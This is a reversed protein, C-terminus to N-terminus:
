GLQRFGSAFHIRLVKGELDDGVVLGSFLKYHDIRRNHYVSPITSDIFAVRAAQGFRWRLYVGGPLMMTM